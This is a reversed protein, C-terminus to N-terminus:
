CIPLMLSVESLDLSAIGSVHQVRTEDAISELLSLNERMMEVTTHNPAMQVVDATDCSNSITM